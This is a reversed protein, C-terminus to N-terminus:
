NSQHVPDEAIYRVFSWIPKNVAYDMNHEQHYAEREFSVNRYARKLERYIIIKALFEAFYFLFFFIWLLEMQQRLHIREHHMLVPDGRLDGERLIIFPWIALANFASPFIFPIVLIMFGGTTICSGYM